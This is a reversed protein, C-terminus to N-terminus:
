RHTTLHQAYPCNPLLNLKTYVVFWVSDQLHNRRHNLDITETWAASAVRPGDEPARGNPGICRCTVRSWWVQQFNRVATKTAYYERALM